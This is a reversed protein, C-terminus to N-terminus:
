AASSAPSGFLRDRCAPWRRVLSETVVLLAPLFVLEAVTAAIVAACALV